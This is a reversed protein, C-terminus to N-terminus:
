LSGRSCLNLMWVLFRENMMTIKLFRENMMTIKLFRENMMTIKELMRVLFRKLM